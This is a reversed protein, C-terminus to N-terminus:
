IFINSYKLIYFTIGTYRNQVILLQLLGFITGSYLMIGFIWRVMLLKQKQKSLQIDVQYGMSSVLKNSNKEFSCHPPREIELAEIVVTVLREAHM